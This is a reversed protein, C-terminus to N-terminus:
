RRRRQPRRSPWAGALPEAIESATPDIAACKICHRCHIRPHRRTGAAWPLPLLGELAHAAHTVGKKTWPSSEAGVVDLVVLPAKAELAHM